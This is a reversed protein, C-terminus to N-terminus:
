ANRFDLYDVIIELFCRCRITEALPAGLSGDRPGPLRAGSGTTFVGDFPLEVGDLTRHSGRVRGDASTSWRKVVTDMDVIGEDFIRQYGQVRGQGLAGLTETQAITQGRTFLLKNTMGTAINDIQKITPTQTGAIIRQVLKDYNRNRSKLDLYSKLREIGGDRLAVRVSQVTRADKATLGIIGGERRGTANNRRGVIDLATRRPNQSRLTAEALTERVADQVSDIVGQILLDGRARILAAEAPREGTFIISTKSGDPSRQGDPITAIPIGGGVVFAARLEARVRAFHDDTINLAVILAPLDDARIANEVDGFAISGTLSQIAAIFARRM